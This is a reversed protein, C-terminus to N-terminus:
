EDSRAISGGKVVLPQKDIFVSVYFRKIMDASAQLIEAILNSLRRIKRYLENLAFASGRDGSRKLAKAQKEIKAVEKRLEEVLKQQMVPIAPANAIAEDRTSTGSQNGSSQAGGGAAPVDGSNDERIRNSVTGMLNIVEVVEKLAPPQFVVSPANETKESVSKPAAEASMKQKVM